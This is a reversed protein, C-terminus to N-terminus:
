KSIYQFKYEDTRISTYICDHKTLIYTHTCKCSLFEIVHSCSISTSMGQVDDGDFSGGDTYITGDSDRFNCKKYEYSLEFNDNPKAFFCGYYM